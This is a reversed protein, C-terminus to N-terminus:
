AESTSRCSPTETPLSPWALLGSSRSTHVPFRTYTLVSQQDLSNACCPLIEASEHDFIPHGVNLGNCGDIHTPGNCGDGPAAYRPGSSRNGGTERTQKNGDRTQRSGGGTLNDHCKRKQTAQTSRKEPQGTSHDPADATRGGPLTTPYQTHREGNDGGGQSGSREVRQQDSRARRDWLM